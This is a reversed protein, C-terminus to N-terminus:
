TDYSSSSVHMDHTMHPPPYKCTMLCVQAALQAYSTEIAELAAARALKNNTEKMTMYAKNIKDTMETVFEDVDRGTGMCEMRFVKDAGKLMDAHRVDLESGSLPMSKELDRAAAEYTDLADLVAKMNKSKSVQTWADGINLSAGSNISQAYQDALHSIMFGDLVKGNLMKPPASTYIKRRLIKVQEIFEPRFDSWEANDLSQM